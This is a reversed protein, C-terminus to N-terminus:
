RPKSAPRGTATSPRELDPEALTRTALAHGMTTAGM